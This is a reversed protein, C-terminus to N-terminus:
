VGGIQPPESLLYGSLSEFKKETGIPLAVRYVADRYQDPMDATGFVCSSTLIGRCKILAQFVRAVSTKGLNPPRTTFEEGVDWYRYLQGL